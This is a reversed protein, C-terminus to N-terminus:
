HVREENGYKILFILTEGFLLFLGPLLWFFSVFAAGGLLAIAYLWGAANMRRNVLFAGVLACLSMLVMGVIRVISEHFTDVHVGLGARGTALYGLWLGSVGALLGMLYAAVRM